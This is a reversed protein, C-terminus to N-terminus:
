RGSININRERMTPACLVNANARINRDLKTPPFDKRKKKWANVVFSFETATLFVLTGKSFCNKKRIVERLVGEALPVSYLIKVKM